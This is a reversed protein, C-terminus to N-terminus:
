GHGSGLELGKASESLPEREAVAELEKQAIHPNSQQKVYDLYYQKSKEATECNWQVGSAASMAEVSEPISRGKSLLHYFALYSVATDSWTPDQYSGVMVLYPHPVDGEEMAMRCASYGHCASMCLLLAGNLSQNVPVLLARLESWSLAEGSSLEIGNESGHASLHLIPHRGPIEKM